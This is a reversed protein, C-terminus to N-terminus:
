KEKMVYVGDWEPPPTHAAYYAVIDLFVLSPNSTVGPTQGPQNPELAASRRFLAEAGAWDREHYRTLGQTFLTICEHTSPPTHEKLGLIEHIPVAQSRGKVVIRGLPRFVVRDGGHQECALRTAETCMSYAGWSKAGSEMRAALNVDDGMMTYNFRTRSGMNGVVCRGSNLGIRSQMEWVIPPWQDGASRWKERLERLRHQVRQTAVCARYAHDPLPIPAGFMAVVADGIYKDLTGGEEQIIDTCATLYENMLEVLRDPPLKESFTSFGQIDSFYATLDEEHGGLEPPRGSKVLRDVLQPSVYAGFMSTIEQKGRHEELVRRGIVIFQLMAFGFLPAVFDLWWSHAVWAWLSLAAYSVIGLVAGGLLTLISRDALVFLGAYGLVLAVSWIFWAPVKYAYDETLINNIINMHVLPLPTFEARPSSAADANGTEFLGVMIMADKLDPPPPSAPDPEVYKKYLGLLLARYGITPFVSEADLAEYRYNLLICGRQDIPIRLERHKTPVYIADGARVRVASAPVDFYRMITALSLAPYYKGDIKVVLPPTRPIGDSSVVREDGFKPVDVHGYHSVGRLVPIPLAAYQASVFGRTDGEVQTIPQTLVPEPSATAATPRDSRVAGTVVELGRAHAATIGDAMAKDGDPERESTIFVDMTLVKAGAASVLEILQGHWQRSPPWAVLNEESDDDFLVLRLRPDPPPQFAVRYRTRWDLAKWEFQRVIDATNLLAAFGFCALPAWWIQRFVKRTNNLM